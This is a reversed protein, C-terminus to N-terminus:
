WSAEAALRLHPRGYGSGLVMNQTVRRLYFHHGWEWTFGIGGCLQICDSVISMAHTWIYTEAIAAHLRLDDGRSDFTSAARALLLRIQETAVTHDVLRHAVAQYKGIPAGFTTREKAYETTKSVVHQVCGLTDACYLLAKPALM